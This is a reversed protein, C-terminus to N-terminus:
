NICAYILVYRKETHLLIDVTCMYLSYRGAVFSISYVWLGFIFLRIVTVVKYAKPGKTKKYPRFLLPKIKIDM